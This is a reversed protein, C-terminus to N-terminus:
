RIARYSSEEDFLIQECNKHVTSYLIGNRQQLSDDDIRILKIFYKESVCVVLMVILCYVHCKDFRYKLIAFLLSQFLSKEWNTFFSSREYFLWLFRDFPHFASSLYSEISERTCVRWLFIREPTYIVSRCVRRPVVRTRRSFSAEIVYKVIVLAILAERAHEDSEINVRERWETYIVLITCSISSFDPRYYQCVPSQNTRFKVRNTQLVLMLNIEDQTWRNTNTRESFRLSM